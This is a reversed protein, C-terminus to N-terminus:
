EEKGVFSKKSLLARRIEGYRRSTPRQAKEKWDSAKAAAAAQVRAQVISQGRKKFEITLYPCTIVRKHVYVVDSLESRYDGNFGALYLCYSCDPRIDFKFNHQDTEFSPPAVWSVDNLPCFLSQVRRGRWKRDSPVQVFRCQRRFFM